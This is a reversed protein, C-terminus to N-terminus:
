VASITMPRGNRKVNCSKCEGNTMDSASWGEVMDKGSNHLAVAHQLQPHHLPGLREQRVFKVNHNLLGNLSEQERPIGVKQGGVKQRTDALIKPVFSERTLSLANFPLDPDKPYGLTFPQSLTKSDKPNPNPGLQYATSTRNRPSCKETGCVAAKSDAHDYSEKDSSTTTTPPIQKVGTKSLTKQMESGSWPVECSDSDDCADPDPCGLEGLVANLQNMVSQYDDNSASIVNNYATKYATQIADTNDWYYNYFDVFTDFSKPNGDSTLVKMQLLYVAMLATTAIGRLNNGRIWLRKKLSDYWIGENVSLVISEMLPDPIDVCITVYLFDKKSIPCCNPIAEDRIIVRKWPQDDLLSQNWVAMGGKRYNATSPPGLAQVVDPLAKYAEDSWNPWKVTWYMTISIFLLLVIFIIAISLAWWNM